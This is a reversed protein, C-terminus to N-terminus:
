TKLNALLALVDHFFGIQRFFTSFLRFSDQFKFCKLVVVSRRYPVLVEVGGGFRM